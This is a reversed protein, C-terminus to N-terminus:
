VLLLVYVYVIYMNCLIKIIIIFYGTNIVTSLIIIVGQIGFWKDM